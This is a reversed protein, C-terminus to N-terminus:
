SGASASLQLVEVSLDKGTRVGASKFVSAHVENGTDMDM